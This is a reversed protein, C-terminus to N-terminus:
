YSSFEKYNMLSTLSSAHKKRNDLIVGCSFENSKTYLGNVLRVPLNRNVPWYGPLWSKGFVIHVNKANLDTQLSILTIRM